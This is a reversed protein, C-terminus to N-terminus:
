LVAITRNEAVIGNMNEKCVSGILEQICKPPDYCWMADMGQKIALRALEHAVWNAERCTHECVNIHKAHWKFFKFLSVDNVRNSL